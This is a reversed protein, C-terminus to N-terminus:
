LNTARNGGTQNRSPIGALKSYLICGDEGPEAADLFRPVSKGLGGNSLASELRGLLRGPLDTVRNRAM